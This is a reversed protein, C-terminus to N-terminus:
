SVAPVLRKRARRRRIYRLVLVLLVAILGALGCGVAILLHISNILVYGGSAAYFGNFKRLVTPLEQLDAASMALSHEAPHYSSEWPYMEGRANEEIHAGLVYKIPHEKAFELAREASALDSQSDDILLRGPMLFDGSFFLATDRDYFSIETENHGPTPLADVVRGGLDIQATGNPWDKFGFFEKVRDLEYGVVQVKAVAAFQADGSRHDFHRHTHVVLLPLKAGASAPLLDVVIKALPMKQPDAVDGTDILLAKSSGVLLYLFPSEFTACLNERIVFTQPDYPRVEIPKYSAKTCDPSGEDWKSSWPLPATQAAAAPLLFFMLLVTTVASKM